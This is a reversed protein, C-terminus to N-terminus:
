LTWQLLSRRRGEYKIFNLYRERCQKGLRLNKGSNAALKRAIKEWNKM